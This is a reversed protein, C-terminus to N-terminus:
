NKPSSLNFSGSNQGIKVRDQRRLHHVLRRDPVQVLRGFLEGSVDDGALGLRCPPGEALRVDIDSTFEDM